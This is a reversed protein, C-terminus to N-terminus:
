KKDKQNSIIKRVERGFDMDNHTKKMLNIIEELLKENFDTQENNKVLM